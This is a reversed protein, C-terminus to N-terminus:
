RSPPPPPYSSSFAEIIYKSSSDYTLTFSTNTITLGGVDDPSIISLIRNPKHEKPLNPDSIVAIHDSYNYTYQVITDLFSVNVEVIQLGNVDTDLVVTGIATIENKVNNQIYAYQTQITNPVTNDDFIKYYFLGLPQTSM